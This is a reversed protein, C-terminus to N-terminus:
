ALIYGVLDENVPLSITSLIPTNSLIKETAESVSLMPYPSSRHRQTVINILTTPCVKGVWSMRCYSGRNRHLIRSLGDMVMVNLIIIALMFGRRIMWLGRGQRQLM